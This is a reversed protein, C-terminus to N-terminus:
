YARSNNGEVFNILSKNAVMNGGPTPYDGTFYWDGKHNPCSKHLDEIKQYIIKVEAKCNAPTILEAIKDSIQSATFKKYLAKVENTQLHRPKQLQEKCKHYVEDLLQYNNTEKLLALTARFAVFDGMRSMDIGYCDPYRIQPASSLIIIKKPNLRDLMTIISEKLTTGRVISDDIVVITDKQPAICGYTIDYVHQVMENRTADQTIFTRLKADKIAIKEIRPSMSLLNNLKDEDLQYQYKKIHERKWQNIYQEVGKILGYFSVEATNPIFSFVTNKYDFDVETLVSEVLCKGLNKREEYISKDSGRSFYIREFSCSLQTTPETYQTHSVSGDKKIIIAHAPSIEHISELPINFVTQIAPRESAVVCIEDDQYYFAPRIGAPDRMVFADGHGLLGMISYGGDFLQTAKQLVKPIDIKDAILSTADKASIGSKVLEEFCFDNEEEFFHGLTELVATTDFQDKFYTNSKELFQFVEESNTLNFNGAAIINKSLWSNQKLFPHCREVNNGGHTGYRLHGLLIEGMFSVHSKLWETDAALEPTTKEIKAFDSHIREFLESIAQKSNSKAINYFPQGPRPNLKVSAIGAGDQGRNHQKEMLLYLKNLGYLPTGYKNQYYSLPKLMRILAIGCEHKINDSM